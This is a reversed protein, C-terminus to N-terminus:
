LTTNEPVKANPSALLFAACSFLAVSCVAVSLPGIYSNLAYLALCFLICSAISRKAATSIADRPLRTLTIPIVFFLILSATYLYILVPDNRNSGWIAVNITALVFMVTGYGIQSKTKM